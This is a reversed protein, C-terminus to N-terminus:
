EWQQQEDKDFKEWDNKLQGKQYTLLDAEQSATNQKNINRTTEFFDTDANPVYDKYPNETVGLMQYLFNARWKIFYESSDTTIGKVDKNDFLYHAWEIESEVTLKILADLEKWFFGDSGFFETFGQEEETRFIAFLHRTTPVHTNLEDHAILQIIRNFGPIAFNYRNNIIFTVLFSFPFKIGELCFVGILLRLLAKKLERMKNKDNYPIDDLSELDHMTKFLEKEVDMRAQVVKDDYVLDLIESAKYGFVVNLGYSYSESHITEEIMIRRYLIDWIPTSVCKLLVESIGSTVGSDMLTQYAINLKFARKADEPLDDFRTKDQTMDIEKTFWTNGESNEKLTKAIEHSVKDIRIYKSKQGFFIKNEETKQTTDIIEDSM